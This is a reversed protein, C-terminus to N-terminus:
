FNFVFRCNKYVEKKLDILSNNSNELDIDNKRLLKKKLSHYGSLVKMLEVVILGAASPFL